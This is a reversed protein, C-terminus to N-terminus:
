QAAYPPQNWQQPAAYEVTTTECEFKIGGVVGAAINYILGAILGSIFGAFSYFLPFAIMILLGVVVSSVGGLAAGDNNPSLASLAAGFLMVSLGYIVGILLGVVFFVLGYIKAVSFVSFRKITMEPMM